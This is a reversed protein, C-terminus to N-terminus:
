LSKRKNPPMPYKKLFFGYTNFDKLQEGLTLKHQQIFSQASKLSVFWKKFRGSTFTHWCMLTVKRQVYLLGLRSRIVRYTIGNKFIIKVVM